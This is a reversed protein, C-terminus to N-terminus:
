DQKEALTLIIKMQFIVCGVLVLIRQFKNNFLMEIMVFASLRGIELARHMFLAAHAGLPSREWEHRNIGASRLVEQQFRTM